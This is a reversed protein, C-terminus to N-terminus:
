CSNGYFYVGYGGYSNVVIVWWCMFFLKENVDYDFYYIYILIEEFINKVIFKLINRLLKCYIGYM